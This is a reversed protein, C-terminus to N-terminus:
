PYSTAPETTRVTGHRLHITRGDHGRIILAGDPTIGVAEGAPEGDVTLLHGRLSDRVALEDLELTGLPATIRDELESLEAVIATALAGRDVERGTALAISTAPQDDAHPLQEITQSVNIGIGAVIYGGTRTALSGECLIGAVKAGAGVYELQLDNPWKIRTATAATRDIARAAALGVRLPIAGPADDSALPGNTRLVISFLLARGPPALWPKGGRGRGATQEDAIVITCAPAGEEALQRAITNTSAVRRYLLVHPREGGFSAGFWLDRWEEATRGEWTRAPLTAGAPDIVGPPSCSALLPTNSWTTM